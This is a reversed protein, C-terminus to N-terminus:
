ALVKGAKKIAVGDFSVATRKTMHPATAHQVRKQNNLDKQNLDKM